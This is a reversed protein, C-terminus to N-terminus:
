SFDEACVVLEKKQQSTYGKPDMGTTLFHIIDAFHNDAVCVIFLQVNPLGEELKNLEEGTEIRSVHDTRANLRGSKM